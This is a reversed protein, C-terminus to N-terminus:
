QGCCLTEDSASAPQFFGDFLQRLPAEEQAKTRPWFATKGEKAQQTEAGQLHLPLLSIMEASGSVPLCLLFYIILPTQNNSHNGKGVRKVLLKLKLGLPRPRETGARTLPPPATSGTACFLLSAPQLPAPMSMSGDVLSVPVVAELWGAPQAQGAAQPLDWTAFIRRSRLTLMRDWGVSTLFDTLDTYGSSLPQPSRHPTVKNPGFM